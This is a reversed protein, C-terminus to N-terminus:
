YIPLGDPGFQPIPMFCPPLTPSYPPLCLQPICPVGNWGSVMNPACVMMPDEAQAPALPALAIAGAVLAPALLWSKARTSMTMVASFLCQQVLNCMQALAVCEVSRWTAGRM